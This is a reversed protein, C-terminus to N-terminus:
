CVSYSRQPARSSRRRALTMRLSQQKRAIKMRLSQKGDRLGLVRHIYGGRFWAQVQRFTSIRTLKGRKKVEDIFDLLELEFDLIVKGHLM